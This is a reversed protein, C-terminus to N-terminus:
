ERELSPEQATEDDSPEEENPTRRNAYIAVQSALEEPDQLWKLLTSRKVADPGGGGAFGARVFLWRVLLPDDVFAPLQLPGEM